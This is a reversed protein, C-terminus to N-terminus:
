IRRAAGHGGRARGARSRAAAAAREMPTQDYAEEQADSVPSVDAM